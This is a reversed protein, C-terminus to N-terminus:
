CLTECTSCCLAWAAYTLMIHHCDYRLREPFQYILIGGFAFVEPVMAEDDENVGVLIAHVNLDEDMGYYIRFGTCGDQKLIEDVAAIDFTESLALVNTSAYESNLITSKEARYRSTMAAANALTILHNHPM